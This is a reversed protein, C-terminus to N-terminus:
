FQRVDGIAPDTIQDCDGYALSDLLGNEDESRYTRRVRDVRTDLSFRPGSASVEFHDHEFRCVYGTLVCLNTWPGGAKDKEAFVGNAVDIKVFRTLTVSIHAGGVPNAVEKTLACKLFIPDASVTAASGLVLGGTTAALIMLTFTRM